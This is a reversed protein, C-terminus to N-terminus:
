EVLLEDTEEIDKALIEKKEGKRLVLIKDYEYFIHVKGKEDTIKIEEMEFDIGSVFVSYGTKTHPDANINNKYYDILDPDDSDIAALKIQLSSYDLTVLYYNKIDPVSFIKKFLESGSSFSPIQQYNPDKCSNRGSETGMVSYTPHIRKTGDAHTIVHSRWGDMRGVRGLFTKQLTQYSRLEKILTAEPHKKEWLTLQDYGTLYFGAKARGYNEWGLRELIEGLQKPSQLEPYLSESDENNESSFLDISKDKKDHINLSRALEKKIRIIENDVFISFSDWKKQDIFIGYEEIDIFTRYAPLKIKEYYERVTWMGEQPPPFNKDIETLQKQQEEHVLFTVISDMTAYNTLIPDPVDYYNKIKYKKLYSDLDKDYGGYLTYYYSLSKLGNHRFENLTQGLMLTDSHVYGKKSGKYRLFKIDFKLNQGIQFKNSLFDDLKKINILDFPIYYGTRGDFSCTFCKIKGKVFNFGDTEIDWAIKKDDSHNSFFSDVQSATQLQIVNINPPTPPDKLIPYLQQIRQLQYEFFHFRSSKSPVVYELKDKFLEKWSDVPFVYKKLEPSYFYTKNFIFDYFDSLIINDSLTIAQISMGMTVVVSFPQLYDEFNSRESEYFKYISHKRIYEETESKQSALVLTYSFDPILKSCVKEFSYIYRKDPKIDTLFLIHRHPNKSIHLLVCSKKNKHQTGFEFSPHNTKM